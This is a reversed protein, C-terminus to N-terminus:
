LIIYTHLYIEVLKKYKTLLAWILKVLIVLVICVMLHYFDSDMSLIINMEHYGMLDYM